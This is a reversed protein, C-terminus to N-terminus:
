CMKMSKDLVKKSERRSKEQDRELAAGGNLVSAYIVM